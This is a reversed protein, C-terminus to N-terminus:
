DNVDVSTRSSELMGSAEAIKKLKELYDERREPEM